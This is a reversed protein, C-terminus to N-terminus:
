ANLAIVPVGKGTLSFSYKVKEKNTADLDFATFYADGSLALNGVIGDTFEFASLTGDNLAEAMELVGIDTAGSSNDAVGEGSFSWETDQPNFDKGVIDKTAIEELPKSLSIKGSIEHMITKTGIKARMNAGNYVLAM